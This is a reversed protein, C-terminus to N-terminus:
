LLILKFYAHRRKSLSSEKLSLFTDKIKEKGYALFIRKIDHTGGHSLTRSIIAKESLSPISSEDIEWFLKKLAVTDMGILIDNRGM